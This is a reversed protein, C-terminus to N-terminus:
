QEIRLELEYSLASLFYLPATETRLIRPGLGLIIADRKIFEEIEGPSLGGEPGFVVLAKMGKELKLFFQMLKAQEGLQSMKEYAVAVVDYEELKQFLEHKSILLDLLPIHTRGSQEAAEKAIKLLREQKKLLKKADWRVVSRESPFALLSYMGLETAKQVIWELKEGKSFSHAITVQVPLEKKQLEEELLSFTVIELDIKVIKALFSREERFVLYVQGGERMRLVHLVHHAQEGSLQVTKKESVYFEELFYRQM